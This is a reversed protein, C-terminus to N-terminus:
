EEEKHRRIDLTIMEGGAGTNEVEFKNIEFPTGNITDKIRKMFDIIEESLEVM